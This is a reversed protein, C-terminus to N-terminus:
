DANDSFKIFLKTRFHQSYTSFAPLHLSTLAMFPKITIQKANERALMATQITQARNMRDWDTIQYCFSFGNRKGIDLGSGRALHFTSLPSCPCLASSKNDSFSILFFLEEWGPKKPLVQTAKSSGISFLLSLFTNYEAFDFLYRHDSRPRRSLFPHSLDITTATMTTTANL